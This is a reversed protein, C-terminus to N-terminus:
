ATEPRSGRPDEAEPEEVGEGPRELLWRDREAALEPWDELPDQVSGDGEAEQAGREPELGLLAHSPADAAEGRVVPAAPKARGRPQARRTRKAKTM